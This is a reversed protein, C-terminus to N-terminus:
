EFWCVKKMRYVREGYRNRTPTRLVNCVKYRTQFPSVGGEVWPGGRSEDALLREIKYYDGHGHRGAQATTTVATLAIAVALVTHTAKKFM